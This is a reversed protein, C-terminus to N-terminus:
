GVREFTFSRQPAGDFAFHHDPHIVIEAAEGVWGGGRLAPLVGTGAASIPMQVLVVAGISPLAAVSAAHMRMAAAGGGELAPLAAAGEALVAAVSAASGSGALPPLLAAAESQVVVSAAGTAAIAPLTAAAAAGAQSGGTGAGTLAPLTADATAHTHVRAAAAATLAPLEAEGQAQSPTEAEATAALAPLAAAAAAHTRVSAEGAGLLAPLVAAGGAEVGISAEAGGALPPLTGAGTAAVPEEAPLGANERIESDSFPAINIGPLENAAAIFENAYVGAMVTGAHGPISMLYPSFGSSDLYDLQVGAMTVYQGDATPWVEAQLHEDLRRFSCATRGQATNVAACHAEIQANIADITSTVYGRRVPDTWGALPVIGPHQAFDFLGIVVVGQAGAEVLEDVCTTAATVVSDIVQAVTWGTGATSGDGNYINPGWLPARNMWENSTVFAVCHSVEGAEVQAVLGPLEEQVVRPVGSNPTSMVASDRAWNHAFGRRRPEGRSSASWLGVDLGRHHAAPYPQGMAPSAMQELWNLTTAEYPTGVGRGADARYEDTQSDGLFGWRATGFASGAGRLAPLVGAASAEMRVTAAGSGQLAPITAHGSFGPIVGVQGTASLAPLVGASQATVVTGASGSGLLAPLVGAGGAEIPDAPAPWEGGPGWSAGSLNDLETAGDVSQGSADLVSWLLGEADPAAADVGAPPMRDWVEIGDIAGTSGVLVPEDGWYVFGNAASNNALTVGAVSQSGIVVGVADWVEITCGAPGAWGRLVYYAGATFEAEDIIAVCQPTNGAPGSLAVYVSGGARATAIQLRYTGSEEGRVAWIVSSAPASNLLLSGSVRARLGLTTATGLNSQSASTRAYATNSALTLLGM